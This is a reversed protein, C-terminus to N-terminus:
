DQLPITEPCSALAHTFWSALGKLRAILKALSDSPCGYALRLACLANTARKGFGPSSIPQVLKRRLKPSFRACRVRGARGSRGFREKTQRRARRGPFIVPFGSQYSNSPDLGQLKYQMDKCPFEDQSAVPSPPASLGAFDLPETVTSLARSLLLAQLTFGKPFARRITTGPPKTLLIRFMM